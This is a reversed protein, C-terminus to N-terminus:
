AGKCADFNRAAETEAEVRSLNASGQYALGTLEDVFLVDGRPLKNLRGVGPSGRKGTGPRIHSFRALKGRLVLVANVEAIKTPMRVPREDRNIGFFM